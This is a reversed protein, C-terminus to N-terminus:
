KSFLRLFVFLDKKSIIKIIWLSLILVFYLIFIKIRYDFPNPLIFVAYSLVGVITGKAFLIVIDKWKYTNRVQYLIYGTYILESIISACIVGIIGYKVTGCYCLVVYLSSVFVIGHLYKNQMKLSLMSYEIATRGFVISIIILSLQMIYGAGAYKAGYLFSIIAEGFPAFILFVLLGAIVFVKTLKMVINDFASKEKVFSNIVPFFANYAAMIGFSWFAIIPRYAASYIGVDANSMTVGVIFISYNYPIQMLTGSIGVPTCEKVLAVIGKLTIKSFYFSNRKIYLFAFYFFVIIFSFSYIWSVVVDTHLSESLLLLPIVFFLARAIRIVSVIIMKEVAQFYWEMTVSIGLLSVLLVFIIYLEKSDSLLLHLLFASGIIFVALLFRVSFVNEVLFDDRDHQSIRRVAITEMGFETFRAFFSAIAQAFSFRGFDEPTLIYAVRILGYFVILQSIMNGSFLVIFNKSIRKAIM